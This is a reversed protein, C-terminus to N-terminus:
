YHHAFHTCYMYKRLFVFNVIRVDFDNADLVERRLLHLIYAGQREFFNQFTMNNITTAVESRVTQLVEAMNSVNILFPLTTESKKKRALLLALPMDSMLRGSLAGENDTPSIKISIDPADSALMGNSDLGYLPDEPTVGEPMKNM